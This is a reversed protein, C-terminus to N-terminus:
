CLGFRIVFPVFLPTESLDDSGDHSLHIGGTM